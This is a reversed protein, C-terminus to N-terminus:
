DHSTAPSSRTSRESSSLRSVIRVEEGFQEDRVTLGWSAEDDTPGLVISGHEPLHERDSM